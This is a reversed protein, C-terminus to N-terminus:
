TPTVSESIRVARSPEREDVGIDASARLSVACTTFQAPSRFGPGPRTTCTSHKSHFDFNNKKKM